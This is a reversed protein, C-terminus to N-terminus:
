SAGDPSLGLTELVRAAPQGQPVILIRGPAKGRLAVVAGKPCIGFCGTELVRVARRRGTARLAHRLAGRLDDRGKEGFGGKLKGGCKRCLIVIDQWSAERSGIEGISKTRKSM